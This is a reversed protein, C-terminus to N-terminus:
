STFYWLSPDELRLSSVEVNMGVGLEQQTCYLCYMVIGNWGMVEWLAAWALIKSCERPRIIVPKLGM